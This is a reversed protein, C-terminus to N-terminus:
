SLAWESIFEWNSYGSPLMTITTGEGAEVCRMLIQMREPPGAVVGHDESTYDVLTDGLFVSKVLTWGAPIQPGSDGAPMYYQGCAVLINGATPASGLTVINTNGGATQIPTTAATNIAVGLIRGVGHRYYVGGWSFSADGGAPAPATAIGIMERVYGLDGTHLDGQIMTWPAAVVLDNGLYDWPGDLYLYALMMAPTDSPDPITAAVPTYTYASDGSDSLYVLSSTSCAPMLMPTLTLPIEFTTHALQTVTRRMVRMWVYDAGYGPRGSGDGFDPLHTAHMPIRMGHMVKNVNAEQVTLTTTVVDDPESMEHLQRTAEALATAAVKTNIAPTAVDRPVYRAYVTPDEVYVYGPPGDFPKFNGSAVRGGARNLRVDQSLAFVTTGDIESDVNSLSIESSYLDSTNFDFYALSYRPEVVTGGTGAVTVNLPISFTTPSLVTVVYDGSIAPTSGTHGSITVTATSDLDHPTSTTIVTPNAVSSSVISTGAIALENFWIFYNKGSADKCSSLMTDATQGTLDAKDLNKPGTTDLYLTDKVVAGETTTLWWLIRAIDTEAVRKCDTGVFIRRPIISNEDEMTVIWTRSVATFPEAWVVDLDSIWWNGVRQHGAPAADQVAYIRRHAILVLDGNPDDVEITVSAGSGEEANAGVSIGPKEEDEHPLRVRDTIDIVTGTAIAVFWLLAM